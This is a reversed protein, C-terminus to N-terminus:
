NVFQFFNDNPRVSKDMLDIAIGPLKKVPANQAQASTLSIVAPIVFVLQKNFNIKMYNSPKTISVFINMFKKIIGLDWFYCNNFLNLVFTMKTNKGWIM